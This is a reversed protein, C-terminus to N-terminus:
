RWIACLIGDATQIAHKQVYRASRSGRGSNTVEELISHLEPQTKEPTKKRHNPPIINRRELDQALKRAVIRKMLKCTTNQMTM